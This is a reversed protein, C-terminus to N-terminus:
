EMLSEGFGKSTLGCLCLVSPPPPLLCALLRRKRGRSCYDASWLLVSGTHITLDVPTQYAGQIAMYAITTPCCWNLCRIRFSFHCANGSFNRVIKSFDSFCFISDCFFCFDGGLVMIVFTVPDRCLQVPALREETRWLAAWTLYSSWYTFWAQLMCFLVKMRCCGTRLIKVRTSNTSPEVCVNILPSPCKINSVALSSM